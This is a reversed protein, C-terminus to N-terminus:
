FVYNGFESRFELYEEIVPNNSLVVRFDDAQLSLLSVPCKAVVSATAERGERLSIEGFYDGKKLISINDDIIVEVEGEWVIYFTDNKKGKEIVISQDKFKRITLLKAIQALKEEPVKAFIPIRKLSSIKEKINM